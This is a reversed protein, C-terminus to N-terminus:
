PLSEWYPKSEDHPFANKLAFSACFSGNDNYPCESNTEFNCCKNNDKLSAPATYTGKSPNLVNKEDVQFYFVDYGFKNPGKPGNTDVLFDVNNVAWSCGSSFIIMGNKLITYGFTYFTKNFAATDIASQYLYNSKTPYGLKKGDPWLSNDMSVTDFYQSFDPIFNRLYYDTQGSKSNGCYYNGISNNDISMRTVAQSILSYAKNFQNRLQQIKYKHILNPMTLAAVVGIIGITILVEALTFAKSNLNLDDKISEFM